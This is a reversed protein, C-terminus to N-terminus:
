LRQYLAFARWGIRFGRPQHRRRRFPDHSLSAANESKWRASLKWGNVCRLRLLCDDRNYSLVAERIDPTIAASNGRAIAYEVARLHRSALHLDVKRALGYFIELNKISYSDIGARLGKRVVGYLDVFVEARLLEDLEDARTGYRGMLRKMTTVEYPAYHYIHMGPDRVRRHIIMDILTEFAIKEEAPSFAWLAEYQPGDANAFAYGFLYDLGGNEAQRDGELDLFVDLPSPSPLAALGHGNEIPLTEYKPQGTSRPDFQLRAQERLREFTSVSGRGPKHPLPLPIKALAALTTVGWAELEKRQIRQIGAVLAIYDDKAWRDACVPYWNCIECHAVPDPYPGATEVSSPLAKQLEAEYNRQVLRFYARYEEFRYCEPEFNTDPVVVRLMEPASGQIESLLNGYLCLQILTAGRTERALKTEVQSTAGNESSAKV